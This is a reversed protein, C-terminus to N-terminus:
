SLDGGEDTKILANEFLERQEQSIGSNFTEEFFKELIEIPSLSEIESLTLTLNYANQERMNYSIGILNPFIDHFFFNNETGIFDDLLEVKIYDNSPKVTSKLDDCYGRIVRMQHLPNIKVESIEDSSTDYIFVKKEQNAESLSYRIPSGSYIIRDSIKQPRHLHGLAVYDFGKFHDKSVMDATGVVTFTESDSVEGGTIFAHATVINKMSKDMNERIESCIISFADNYSKVTKDPYLCRVEEINFYPIPYVAANDLIFPKINKELKGRIFLGAKPLLGNYSALRAAGDHNGAIIITKVSLDGCIKEVASSFLSISNASSVSSDYIDGSIVLADIKEKQIIETLQSLFSFQEQYMSIGNLTIGIHWDSTHLLRM